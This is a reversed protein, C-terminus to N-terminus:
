RLHRRAAATGIRDATRAGIRTLYSKIPQSRQARRDDRRRPLQPDTIGQDAILANSVAVSCTCDRGYMRPNGAGDMCATGRTCKGAGARPFVSDGGDPRDRGRRARLPAFPRLFLSVSPFSRKARTPQPTAAASLPPFRYEWGQITLFRAALRADIAEAPTTPASVEGGTLRAHLTAMEARTEDVGTPSITRCHTTSIMCASLRRMSLGVVPTPPSSIM